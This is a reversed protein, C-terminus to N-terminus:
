ATKPRRTPSDAAPLRVFSAITTENLLRGMLERYQKCLPGVPCPAGAACGPTGLLCTADHACDDIAHCVDALTIEEVPRAITVGGGQGRHTHVLGARALHRVVQSLYPAPLSCAEAIDRVRVAGDARALHGLAVAGYVAAIGIGDM